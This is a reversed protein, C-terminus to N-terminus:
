SFSKSAEATSSSQRTSPRCLARIDFIVEFMSVYVGVKAISTFFRAEQYEDSWDLDQLVTIPSRLSDFLDVISSSFGETGESEFKVASETCIM